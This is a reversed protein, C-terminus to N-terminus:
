MVMCSIPKTKNNSFVAPSLPPPPPASFLILSSMLSSSSSISSTSDDTSFSWQCSDVPLSFLRPTLYNPLKERKNGFFLKLKM